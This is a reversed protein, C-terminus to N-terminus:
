YYLPESRVPKFLHFRAMDCIISSLRYSASFTDAGGKELGLDLLDTLKTVQLSFLTTHIYHVGLPQQLSIHLDDFLDSLSKTVIRTKYGKHGHSLKHRGNTDFLNMVTVESCQTHVLCIAWEKSILMADM